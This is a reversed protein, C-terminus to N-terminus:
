IAIWGNHIAFAVPRETPDWKTPAPEPASEKSLFWALIGAEGDVKYQRKLPRLMPVRLEDRQLAPNVRDPKVELFTARGLGLHAKDLPIPRFRILSQILVDLRRCTGWLGRAYLENRFPVLSGIKQAERKSSPLDRRLRVVSVDHGRFFEQGCSERFNGEAYSKRRNVVLGLQTLLNMAATSAASPVILDDGFVSISDMARNLSVSMEASVAMCLITSFVMSQVPFTLASGMSAFKKLTVIGGPLEARTSRCAAIADRLHPRNGILDEVLWYTVRDSAESLDLTAIDSTISGYWAWCGNTKQDFLDLSAPYTARLEKYLLRSLAQQVYQRASPEIAIIRPAKMTKPVTIVRVPLEDNRAVCPRFVHTQYSAYINSPFVEDISEYWHPFDWKAKPSLGEAVAGPGHRPVLEFNAIANELKDLVHRFLREAARRFSDRLSPDVDEPGPLSEDTRTYANLAQVVRDPRVDREVKKTLSCIQRVARVAEPDADPRLFGDADFVLGVFGQLFAPLRGRKRFGPFLSLDIRELSLCRLFATEFEPLTITLFSDGERRTRTALTLLDRSPDIGLLDGLDQTVSTHLELLSKM